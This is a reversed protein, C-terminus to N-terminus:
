KLGMFFRWMEEAARDWSFQGARKLGLEIKEEKLEKNSVVNRMANAISGPHEANAYFAAEGAVEEMSSGKSTIVATGAQMAELVPLGFGEFKSVYVLANAATLWDQIQADNLYGTFHIEKKYPHEDYVKKMGKTKWGKRGGLVLQHDSDIQKKFTAFAELLKGINKRPNLSGYYFFYPRGGINQDRFAKTDGEPKPQFITRGGNYIVRIEKDLEPFRKQIDKKTFESVTAIAAAKSLFKPM